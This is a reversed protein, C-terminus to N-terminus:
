NRRERERVFAPKTKRFASPIAQAFRWRLTPCQLSSNWRPGKFVGAATSLETSYSKDESLSKLLYLGFVYSYILLTISQL